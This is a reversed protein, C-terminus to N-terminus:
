YFNNKHKLDITYYFLVFINKIKESPNPTKLTNIDLDLSYM